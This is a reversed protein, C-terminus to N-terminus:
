LSIIHLIVQIFLIVNSHLRYSSHQAVSYFSSGQSRFSNSTEERRKLQTINLADTLEDARVVKM